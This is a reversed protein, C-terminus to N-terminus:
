AQDYNRSIAGETEMVVIRHSMAEVASMDHSIFLYTLKLRKKYTGQLLGSLKRKYYVFDLSSLHSM